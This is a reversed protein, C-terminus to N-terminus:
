ALLQSVYFQIRAFVPIGDWHLLILEFFIMFVVLKKRDSPGLLCKRVKTNTV